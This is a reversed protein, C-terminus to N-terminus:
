ASGFAGSKGQKPIAHPSIACRRWQQHSSLACGVIRRTRHETAMHRYVRESRSPQRPKVAYPSDSM